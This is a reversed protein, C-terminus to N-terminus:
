IKLTKRKILFYQGIIIFIIMLISIYKLGNIVYPMIFSLNELLSSFSDEKINFNLISEFFTYYKDLIPYKETNALLLDKNFSLLLFLSFVFTTMALATYCLINKNSKEKIYRPEIHEIKKMIEVEFDEPAEIINEKDISFEELIQTYLNFNENCESCEKIHNKLLFEDEESINFDMYKMMLQNAKNCDM